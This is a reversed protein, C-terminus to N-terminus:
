GGFEHVLKMGLVILVYDKFCAHLEISQVCGNELVRVILHPHTEKEGKYLKLRNVHMTRPVRRMIYSGGADIKFPLM